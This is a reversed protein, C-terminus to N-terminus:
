AAARVQNRGRHKAEYLAEDAAQILTQADRKFFSTSAAGISVTIKWYVQAALQSESSTGAVVLGRMREVKRRIWEAVAMVEVDSGKVAVVFEEGGWRGALCREPLTKLLKGLKRLVADGTLHGHQDNMKKFFDIDLVLVGVTEGSGLWSQLRELFAKRRYIETLEDRENEKSLCRLARVVDQYESELQTIEMQLHSLLHRIGELSQGLSHTKM